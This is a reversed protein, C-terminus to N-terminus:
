NGGPVGLVLVWRINCGLTWAQTSNSFFLSMSYAVAVCSERPIEGADLPWRPLRTDVQGIDAHFDFDTASRADYIPVQDDSDITWEDTYLPTTKGEGKTFDSKTSAQLANMGYQAGLMPHGTVMCHWSESREFEVPIGRLNIFKQKMGASARTLLQSRAVAGFMIAYTPRRNRVVHYRPPDTPYEKLEVELPSIRSPNIYQGVDTFRIIALALTASMNPMTKAFHSLPTRPRGLTATWPRYSGQSLNCLNAYDNALIPEQLDACVVENTAPLVTLCKVYKVNGEHSTAGPTTAVLSGLTQSGNPLANANATPTAAPTPSVPQNVVNLVLSGLTQTGNPLANVNATPAAAPSPTIPPNVANLVLAGLTTASNPAVQGPFTSAITPTSGHALIASSSSTTDNSSLGEGDVNSITGVQDKDSREDDTDITTVKAKGKGKNRSKKKAKKGVTPRSEANSKFLATAATHVTADYRDKPLDPAMATVVSRIMALQLQSEEDSPYTDTGEAENAAAHPAPGNSDDIFSDESDYEGASFDSSEEERCRDLAEMPDLALVDDTDSLAADTGEDSSTNHGQDAETDVLATGTRRFFGRTRLPPTAPAPKQVRSRSRRGVFPSGENTEGASEANDDSSIEIVDDKNLPVSVPGSETRRRKSPSAPSVPSNIEHPPLLDGSGPTSPSPGATSRERLKKRLRELARSAKTDRPAKTRDSRRPPKSPTKPPTPLLPIGSSM